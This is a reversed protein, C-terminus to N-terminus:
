PTPGGQPWAPPWEPWHEAFTKLVAAAKANLAHLKDGDRYFDWVRGRTSKPAGAARLRWGNCVLMRELQDIPKQGITPKKATSTMAMVEKPQADPQGPM